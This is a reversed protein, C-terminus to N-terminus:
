GTHRRGVGRKEEQKEEGGRGKEPARGSKSIREKLVSGSGMQYQWSSCAQSFTFPPATVMVEHVTLGVEPAMPVVKLTTVAKLTRLAVPGPSWAM